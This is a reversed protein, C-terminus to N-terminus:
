PKERTKLLNEALKLPFDAEFQGMAREVAGELESAKASGSADLLANKAELFLMKAVTEPELPVGRLASVASLAPSLAARVTDAHEAEMRDLSAVFSRPERAAKQAHVALRRCMRRLADAVLLRHSGDLAAHYATRQSNTDGEVTPSPDPAPTPPPPPESLAEEGVAIGLQDYKVGGAGEDHWLALFDAEALMLRGAAPDQLFVQGLGVGLVVAYHGARKGDAPAVPTQMAVIVPRGQRFLEALDELTLPGATM